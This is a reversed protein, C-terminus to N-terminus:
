LKREDSEGILSIYVRHKYFLATGIEEQNMNCLIMRRGWFRKWFWIIKKIKEKIKM